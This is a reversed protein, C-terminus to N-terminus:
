MSSNFSAQFVTIPRASACCDCATSATKCLTNKDIEDYAAACGKGDTIDRIVDV